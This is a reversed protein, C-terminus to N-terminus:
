FVKTLFGESTKAAVGSLFWTGRSSPKPGPSNALSLLSVRACASTNTLIYVKNASPLSWLQTLARRIYWIRDVTLRVISYPVTAIRNVIENWQKTKKLRKSLLVDFMIGSWTCSELQIKVGVPEEPLAKRLVQVLEGLPSLFIFVEFWHLVCLMLLQLLFFM